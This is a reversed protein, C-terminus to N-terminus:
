TQMTSITIAGTADERADFNFKHTFISSEKVVEPLVTIHRAQLLLIQHEMIDYNFCYTCLTSCVFFLWILEEFFCISKVYIYCDKVELFSNKLYISYPESSPTYCVSINPERVKDM